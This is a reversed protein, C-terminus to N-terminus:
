LKKEECINEVPEKVFTIYYIYHLLLSYVNWRADPLYLCLLLLEEQHM